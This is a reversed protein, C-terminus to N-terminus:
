SFEITCPNLIYPVFSPNIKINTQIRFDKMELYTVLGMTLLSIVLEKGPCKQNAQNFMLARFSNEMELNWREPRFEDPYEFLDRLVSNNFFVFQTGEPFPTQSNQFTFEKTLGRFTSNVANNLRFLELICKRIYSEKHFYSQRHISDIVKELEAPHNILLVLLRPLHVSFLGAIPFIWHPIQQIVVDTPLMKHYTNALWLLTNPKPNQLQVSLYENYLQLDDKNVTDINFVASNFSDAQKFIKYVIDNYEYTGFLIRSTLQRTVDTFESFTRPYKEHFIEQIYEFFYRNYQHSVDTELVKDNYQRKYKWEPETSIGVNKPMFPEFFQKKFKGPGFPNPSLELLEQIDNLETLLYFQTGFITLNVFRGQKKLVQYIEAGTSDRFFDNIKWWFCNQSIIGRRLTLYVIMNVRLTDWEFLLTLLVLIFVVSFLTSNKM